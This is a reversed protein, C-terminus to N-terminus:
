SGGIPVEVYVEMCRCNCVNAAGGAPDHPHMM